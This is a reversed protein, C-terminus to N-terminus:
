LIAPNSKILNSKIQNSKIQNSKIQNSKIQNSKIQNSKIETRSFSSSFHSFSSSIRQLILNWQRVEQEGEAEKSVNEKRKMIKM